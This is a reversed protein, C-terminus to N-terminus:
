LWSPRKWPWCAIREVVGAALLRGLECLAGGGVAEPRQPAAWQQAGLFGGVDDGRRDTQFGHLVRAQHLGVRAVPGVAAEGLHDGLGGLLERGESVASGPKANGPPSDKTSCSTRTLAASSSISAPSSGASTTQWPMTM